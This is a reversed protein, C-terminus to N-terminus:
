KLEQKIRLMIANLGNGRSPSLHSSLALQAFLESGDIQLIENATKGNVASLLLAALGKIIRADSDINFYHLGNDHQHYLWVQSECGSVEASANRLDKSLKPLKKGLLMIQRYKEDWSHCKSFINKIEALELTQTESLQQSTAAPTQLQQIARKLASIFQEIDQENTYLAVSVRIVGSVGLAQMLPMACHHGVRLAIGQKDLLTAVDQHHLGDVTFSVLGKHQYHGIIHIEKIQELASKTKNILHQEHQILAPWDITNLFNIAAGLGIVGAINPTGAELRFPLKAFTSHEFEVKEIMEGGFRQPIVQELLSQKGYLVGIGTSGYMKHASCVFFDCGLASVDVPGHMILQAGDVLTYAGIAQAQTIMQRLDPAFGTANALGTIALLKTRKNCLQTFAQMDLQANEDLPIVKIKAQCKAAVQQWPVINAHHELASILIEDGAQLQQQIFGFALLNIAETTGSTWIIENAAAANIFDAMQHRVQEFAKTGQNSLTHSARHVNAVEHQYYQDIRQIVSSPKLSTAASDLYILPKNAVSLGLQPFLLRLKKIEFPEKKGPRLKVKKTIMTTNLM